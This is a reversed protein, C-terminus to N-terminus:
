VQIDVTEVRTDPKLLTAQAAGNIIGNRKLIGVAYEAASSRVRGAKVAELSDTVAAWVAGDRTGALTLTNKWFPMNKIDDGLKRCIASAKLELGTELKARPSQYVTPSLAKAITNIGDRALFQRTQPNLRNTLGAILSEPNPPDAMPYEIAASQGVARLWEERNATRVAARAERNQRNYSYLASFCSSALDVGEIKIAPNANSQKTPLTTFTAMLHRNNDSVAYVAQGDATYKATAELEMQVLLADHGPLDSATRWPATIAELRPKPAPSQDGFELHELRIRYVTGIKCAEGNIRSGYVVHKQIFRKLIAARANTESLHRQLSRVTLNTSASLDEYTGFFHESDGYHWFRAELMMIMMARVFQAKTKGLAFRDTLSLLSDAIAEAQATIAKAQALYDEYSELEILLAQRQKPDAHRLAELRREAYAPKYSLTTPRPQEAEPPTIPELNPNFELATKYGQELTPKSPNPNELSGCPNATFPPTTPQLASIAPPTPIPQIPNPKEQPTTPATQSTFSKDLNTDPCQNTSCLASCKTSTIGPHHCWGGHKAAYRCIKM